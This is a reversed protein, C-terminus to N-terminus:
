LISQGKTPVFKIILAVKEEPVFITAVGVANKVFDLENAMLKISIWLVLSEAIGHM